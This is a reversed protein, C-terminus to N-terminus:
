MFTSTYSPAIDQKFAETERWATDGRLNAAATTCADEEGPVQCVEKRGARHTAPFATGLHRPRRRLPAGARSLVDGPPELLRQQQRLRAARHEHLLVDRGDGDTLTHTPIIYYVATPITNNLDEIINKM